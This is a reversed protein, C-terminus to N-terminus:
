DSAVGNGMGLGGDSDSDSLRMTAKDSMSRSLSNAMEEADVGAGWVRQGQDARGDVDALYGGWNVPEGRRLGPSLIHPNQARQWRVQLENIM